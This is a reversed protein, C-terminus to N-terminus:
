SPKPGSGVPLWQPAADLQLIKYAFKMKASTEIVRALAEPNQQFNVLWVNEALREVGQQKGIPDPTQSTQRDIGALFTQWAQNTASSHHQEPIPVVIIASHMPIELLPLGWRCSGRSM